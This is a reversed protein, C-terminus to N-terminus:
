GNKQVNCNAFCPIGKGMKVKEGKEVKWTIKIKM